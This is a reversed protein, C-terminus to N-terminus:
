GTEHTAPIPPICQRRRVAHVYHRHHAGPCARPNSSCIWLLDQNSDRFGMGRGIGTEFYSASRSMNFTVMCQYPNWVNVMRNLKEDASEVVFKGLLNDWHEKLKAMAQEVQETTSFESILKKARTKNIVGPKEWKEHHPNEVYGLVFVLSKSEGPALTVDIAHSAIPAWGNAVSNGAIKPLWRPSTCEM